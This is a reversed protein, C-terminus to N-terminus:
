SAAARQLRADAVQYIWGLVTAVRVKVTEPVDIGQRSLEMEIEARVASILVGVLQQEEITLKDWPVQDIVSQELAALDVQETEDLARITDLSIDRAKETWDPHEELVRAAAVRVTLETLVPRDEILNLSCGSLLPALMLGGIILGIGLAETKPAKWEISQTTVMRLLMNVLGLGAAQYEPAILYGVESQLLMAAIGLANAWLTKSQYWAKM